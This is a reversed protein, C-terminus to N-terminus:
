VLTRNGEGAGFDELFRMNLVCYGHAKGLLFAQFGAHFTRTRHIVFFGKTVVAGSVSAPLGRRSQPWM